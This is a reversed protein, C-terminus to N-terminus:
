PTHPNVWEIGLAQAVHMELRAGRSNEWGPLTYIATCGCLRIIDYRLYDAWEWGPIIGKEAPNEVDWGQNRLEESTANFLPFNDDPIGTMPGSVYVRRRVKTSLGPPAPKNM